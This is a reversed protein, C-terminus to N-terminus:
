TDAKLDFGAMPLCLCRLCTLLLFPSGRSLMLRARMPGWVERQARRAATVARDVDDDGAYAVEALTEETAPNVTAFHSRSRPSVFAGDLFLDYRDRVRFHDIAEPAPDYVWAGGFTM